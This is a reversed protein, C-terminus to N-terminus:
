YNYIAQQSAPLTAKINVPLYEEIKGTSLLRRMQEGFVTNQQLYQQMRRRERYHELTVFLIYTPVGTILVRGYGQPTYRWRSTLTKLMTEKAQGDVGIDFFHPLGYQRKLTATGSTYLVLGCFLAGSVAMNFRRWWQRGKEIEWDSETQFKRWRIMWEDFYQMKLEYKTM